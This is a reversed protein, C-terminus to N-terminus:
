IIILLRRLVLVTPMVFGLFIKNKGALKDLSIALSKTIKCYEEIFVLKNWNFRASPL